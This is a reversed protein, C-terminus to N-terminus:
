AGVASSENGFNKDYISVGGQSAQIMKGLRMSADELHRYSLIVNAIMESDLEQRDRDTARPSSKLAESLSKVQSAIDKIGNRLRVAYVEAGANANSVEFDSDAPSKLFDIVEETARNAIGILEESPMIIETGKCEQSMFLTSSEGLAQTIIDKIKEDKEMEMKKFNFNYEAKGDQM